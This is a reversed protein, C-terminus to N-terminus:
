GSRRLLILLFPAGLLATVIGVQLETGPIARQAIIDSAILLGSGIIGAGLLSTRWDVGLMRRALHPAVLGVFAIIGAAGVAAAAMATGAGLVVLKLRRTDIGLRQASEEGVALANLKKTQQFLVVGGAVAIAALLALRNWFMESTRGLLWRLVVSEDKGGLVLILTLAASLMSAIVVGALLLTRVDLMGRKGAIGFVVALALLGGVFSAAFGGLGSWAMGFGLVLALTGGVAAGSSVGVIYPEALPNRFLAQFASGVMGLIGGVLLCGIARPLRIQWVILNLGGEGTDGKLIERILSIPSASVSSGIAIHALLLVLVGIGLIM